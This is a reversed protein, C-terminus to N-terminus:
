NIMVMAGKIVTQGSASLETSANGKITFSVKASAKVNTGTIVIDSNASIEAKSCAKAVIDGKAKLFIDKASSLSIGDKDMCIENKHEDCLRISKKEDNIEVTNKGPTHLIITKQKEDFKLELKERTTVTKIDNDQEFGFPPQHKKGYLSGLVVPHCPDHNIFGVLVEDGKEPLFLGGAAATAYPSSFRAWLAKKSGDMWPLEVRIRCEQRPDDHLQTVVGTHLGELGPLFGAGPPSAVDPEETIMSPRVGIGAETVWENNEISHHVSGIFVNGNFRKGLGKLAILCGPEVEPSGYFSFSGQYRSLGAKLAMSNVWEKLADGEIPADTQLLLDGGCAIDGPQLDGQKNLAPAASAIKVQKQQSPDWSIGSYRAFQEGGSLSGDFAIMDLGCTVTLVPSSSVKPKIAMIEKGKVCIFLGCADARSLAFDWDTCYYQVMEPHQYATADAKVSGYDSLAEKIMESDKKKEFIRNKRGQTAPYACDRCEVVMHAREGRGARIGVETVIGEFLTDQHNVDGADFRITSGPKFCAADTEPFVQKDLDGANFKLTAMGIRNLELRISASILEHSDDLRKGNSYVSWALVRDKYVSPSKEM